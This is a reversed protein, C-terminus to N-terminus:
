ILLYRTEMKKTRMLKLVMQNTIKYFITDFNFKVNTPDVDAMKEDSTFKFIEKGNVADKIELSLNMSWHQVNVFTRKTKGKDDKKDEIKSREKVEMKLTGTMLLTGAPMKGEGHKENDWPEVKKEIAKSFDDLFFRKIEPEPNYNKPMSNLTLDKYVIKDYKELNATMPDPIELKVEVRSGVGRGCNFLLAVMICLIGVASIRITKM